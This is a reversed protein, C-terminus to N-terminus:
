PIKYEIWPNSNTGYDFYKTTFETPNIEETSLYWKSNASSDLSTIGDLSKIIQFSNLSQSQSYIQTLPLLFFLLTILYKGIRSQKWCQIRNKMNRGDKEITSLGFLKFRGRTRSLYTDSDM